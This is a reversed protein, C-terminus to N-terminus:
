SLLTELREAIVPFISSALSKNLSRFLKDRLIGCCNSSIVAAATLRFLLPITGVSSFMLASDAIATPVLLVSALTECTTVLAASPCTFAKFCSPITALAVPSWISTDYLPCFVTISLVESDMIFYILSIEFFLKASVKFKWIRPIVPAVFFRDSAHDSIHVAM